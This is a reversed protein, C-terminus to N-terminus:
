CVVVIPLAEMTAQRGECKRQLKSDTSELAAPLSKVTASSTITGDLLVANVSEKAAELRTDAKSVFSYWDDSSHTAGLVRVYAIGIWGKGRTRASGDGWEGGGGRDM